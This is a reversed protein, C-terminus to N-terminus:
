WCFSIPPGHAIRYDVLQSFVVPLDNHLLMQLLRSAHWHPMVCSRAHKPFCVSNHERRASCQEATTPPALTGRAVERNPLMGPLGAVLLSLPHDLWGDHATGTSGSAALTAQGHEVSARQLLGEPKTHEAILRLTRDSLTKSGHRRRPQCASHPRHPCVKIRCADLGDHKLTPARGCNAAFGGVPKPGAQSPPNTSRTGAHPAEPQHCGSGPRRGPEPVTPLDLPRSYSLWSLGLRLFPKGTLTKPSAASFATQSGTSAGLLPSFCHDFPLPYSRHESGRFPRIQREALQSFSHRAPARVYPWKGSPYCGRAM